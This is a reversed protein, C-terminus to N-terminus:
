IKKIRKATNFLVAYFFPSILFFRIIWGSLRFADYKKILRVINKRHLSIISKNKRYEKLNRCILTIIQAYYYIYYLEDETIEDINIKDLKSYFYYWNNLRDLNTKESPTRGSVSDARLIWYYGIVPLSMFSSCNHCFLMSFIGDADFGTKGYYRLEGLLQTRYLRSTDRTCLIKSQEPYKERYEKLTTECMQSKTNFQTANDIGISKDNLIKETKFAICDYLIDDINKSVNEFLSCNLYDDSGLFMFYDGSVKDLGYNVASVYGGNEKSYVKIRKDKDSVENLIDLTKDVSGDNVAILEWNDYTQNLVSDIAKRVYEESNYCPMIVSFKIINDAM